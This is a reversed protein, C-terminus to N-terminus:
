APSRLRYKQVFLAITGAVVGWFASGVGAVVVGSMTVLFAIVAAERHASDEILTTLGAGITGLLALGAICAVL